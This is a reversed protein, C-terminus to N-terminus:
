FKTVHDYRYSSLHTFIVKLQAFMYGPTYGTSQPEIVLHFYLLMFIALGYACMEISGTIVCHKYFHPCHIM